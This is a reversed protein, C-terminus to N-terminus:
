ATVIERTRDHIPAVVGDHNALVVVVHNLDPYPDLV